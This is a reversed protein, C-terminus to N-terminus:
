GDAQPKIPQSAPNEATPSKESEPIEYIERLRRKYEDTIEYADRRNEVVKPTILVVLETRTLAKQANSTFLAGLIPIRSLLPLGSRSRDRNDKILGGLVLTDGDKVAVTSKIQRQRIIPNQNIITTQDVDDVRQELEMIVLGGTNVRPKLALQVGTDRQQFTEQVSSQTATNVFSGTRLSIQDGVLITAEHNNLVMLSPSSLVNIKKDTALAKLLVQINQNNSLFSYTFGAPLNKLFLNKALGALDIGQSKLGLQSDEQPLKNRIFWELGYELKDELSVEIISAEILVQLPLIDLQKIVREIARYNEQDAYIILANNTDDAIIRIEGEAAGSSRRAPSTTGLSATEAASPNGLSTPNGPNSISGLQMSQTRSGGLRSSTGLAGLTASRLGPALSPRPTPAAGTFIQNLTDALKLADINQARYVHINGAGTEPASRDLRAIWTKAMELYEPQATIVMLANLRQIPLVKLPATVKGLTKEDLIGELDQAMTEVDVNHLPFLGVSMGELFNVDFARVADEIPTLEAATGAVVLLNRTSDTYLIAKPPLLPELVKQMSEVGVYRLPFIRIQFGEPLTQQPLGLPAGVAAEEAPGVWYFGNKRTLALGNMRLVMELAPLVEDKRLPRTTQLTIKGGAKPSLTYNVKLIDGLIVKAVEALDADDFNLTYQGPQDSPRRGPIARVFTSTGPYIEAKELAPKPKEEPLPAIPEELPPPTPAVTEIPLRERLNPGMYECATLFILLIGSAIRKQSFRDM